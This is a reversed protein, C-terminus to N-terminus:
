APLAAAIKSELQATLEPLPVAFRISAGLQRGITYPHLNLGPAHNVAKRKAKGVVAAGPRKPLAQGFRDEQMMGDYLGILFTPRDAPHVGPASGFRAWLAAFSEAITAAIRDLQRVTGATAEAWLTLGDRYLCRIGTAQEIAWKCANAIADDDFRRVLQAKGSRAFQGRFIDDKSVDAQTFDFKADLRALKATASAREGDIGREALAALKARLARAKTSAPKKV